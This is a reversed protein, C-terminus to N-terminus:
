PAFAYGAENASGYYPYTLWRVNANRLKSPLNYCAGAASWAEGSGSTTSIAVTAHRVYVSAANKRIKQGYGPGTRKDFRDDVWGEGRNTGTYVRSATGGRHCNQGYFIEFAPTPPPGAPLRAHAPAATGVLTVILSVMVIRLV